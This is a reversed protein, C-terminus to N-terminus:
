PFCSDITDRGEELLALCLYDRVWFVGGEWRPIILVFLGVDEALKSSPRRSSREHKKTTLIEKQCFCLIYYEQPM